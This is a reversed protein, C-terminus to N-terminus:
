RSLHVPVNIYVFKQIRNAHTHKSFFSYYYIVHSRPSEVAEPGLTRQRIALNERHVEAARSYEDAYYLSVGLYNRVKCTRPDERGLSAEATALLTEFFPVAQAQQASFDYNHGLKLAVDLDALTAPRRATAVVEHGRRALEIAAERGFGTSCGTILVRM